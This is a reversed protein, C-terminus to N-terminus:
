EKLKKNLILPKSRQKELYGKDVLNNLNNAAEQEDVRLIKSCTEIFKM